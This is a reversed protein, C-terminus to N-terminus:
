DSSRVNIPWIATERFRDFTVVVDALLAQRAGEDRCAYIDSTVGRLAWELNGLSADVSWMEQLNDIVEQYGDEEVGNDLLLELLRSIATREEDNRYWCKALLLMLNKYVSVM